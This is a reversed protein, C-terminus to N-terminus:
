LACNLLGTLETWGDSEAEHMGELFQGPGSWPEPLETLSSM